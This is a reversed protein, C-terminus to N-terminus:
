HLQLKLGEVAVDIGFPPTEKTICYYKGHPTNGFKFNDLSILSTYDCKGRRFSEWSECKVATIPTQEIVADLFVFFPFVHNCIKTNCGPQYRVNNGNPYIDVTGLPETVSFIGNEGHIVIVKECVHANVYVDKRQCMLAPDIAILAALRRGTKEESHLRGGLAAINAGVSHGVLTIDSQRVGNQVLASILKSVFYGHVFVNHKIANYLQLINQAFDVIIINYDKRAEQMYILNGHIHYIHDAFFANVYVITKLRTNIGFEGIRSVYKIPLTITQNNPTSLHIKADSPDNGPFFSMVGEDVDAECFKKWGLPLAAKLTKINYNQVSDITASTAKNSRVLNIGVFSLILFFYIRNEM